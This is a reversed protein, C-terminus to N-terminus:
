RKVVLNYGQRLGEIIDELTLELMRQEVNDCELNYLQQARQCEGIGYRDSYEKRMWHIYRKIRLFAKPNILTEGGYNIGDTIFEIYVKSNNNNVVEKFNFVRQRWDVDFYGLHNRKVGYGYYKAGVFSDYFGFQESGIIELQNLDPCPTNEQAECDELDHIKPMNNDNTFTKISDGCRFGLKTWHVMNRPFDIQKEPKMEIEEAHVERGVDMAFSRYDEIAWNLFQHFRHESEEIDALASYAAASLTYFKHGDRLESKSDYDPELVRNYKTYKAM